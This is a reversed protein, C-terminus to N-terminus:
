PILHRLLRAGVLAEAPCCGLKSNQASLWGAGKLLLYDLVGWFGKPGARGGVVRCGKNSSLFAEKRKQKLGTAKTASDTDGVHAPAHDEEFLVLGELTQM